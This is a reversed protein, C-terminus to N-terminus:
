ALSLHIFDDKLITTKVQLFNPINILHPLSRATANSGIVVVPINANNAAVIGAPADEFIICESPNVKLKAAAKLYCEPHPKGLTVHDEAILLGPLPLGARSLRLRALEESASTVVAWSNQPLNLLLERAGAIPMEGSHLLNFNDILRAEELIDMECSAFLKVTEISPRGHSVALIEMLDLNYRKAFLGWASETISHSNVLTGDMDFLLAKVQKQM